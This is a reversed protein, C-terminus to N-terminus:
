PTQSEDVGLLRFTVALNMRVIDLALGCNIHDLTDNATHVNTNSSDTGEITLVAPILEDIFPVHDSAFPNESTQVALSTYTSAAEALEGMITRSVPAGELLVTPSATNLTAVMDMNIVASIRARESTALGSVYQKSGHLGQEEGGFLILRLDQKAPHEALVRAIELVGAAGSANDDAGPAPAERGGTLNVSDLHATVLILKRAGSENGSRDAIVNYSEGSGVNIPILEVQYGFNQLQDTAWTAASTFQSSLSHRTLFNVLSSLYYNYTSQSVAEINAQMRPVAERAEPKIIDMVVSDMALPRITWWDGEGETFRSVEEPLM